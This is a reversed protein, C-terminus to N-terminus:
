RVPSTAEFEAVSLYLQEIPPWDGHKSLHWGLASARAWQLEDPNAQLWARFAAESEHGRWGINPDSGGFRRATERGAEIRAEIDTTEVVEEIRLGLPVGLLDMCSISPASCFVSQSLQRKFHRLNGVMPARALHLEFHPWNPYRVVIRPDAAYLAELAESDPAAVKDSEQNAAKVLERAAGNARVINWRTQEILLMKKRRIVLKGTNADLRPDPLRGVYVCSVPHPGQGEILDYWPYSMARPPPHVFPRKGQLLRAFLASKQHGPQYGGFTSKPVVADYIRMAAPWRARQEADLEDMCFYTPM